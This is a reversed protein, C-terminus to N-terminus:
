HSEMKACLRLTYISWIASMNVCMARCLLPVLIVSNLGALLLFVPPLCLLLPENVRLTSFLLVMVLSSKTSCSLPKGLHIVRNTKIVLQVFRSIQCYRQYLLGLNSQFTQSSCCLLGSVDLVNLTFSVVGHM